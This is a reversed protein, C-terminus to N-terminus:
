NMFGIFINSVNIYVLKVSLRRNRNPGALMGRRGLPASCKERALSASKKVMIGTRRISYNSYEKAKTLMAPASRRVIYRIYQRCGGGGVGGDCGMQGTRVRLKPLFLHFPFKGHNKMKANHYVWTKTVHM